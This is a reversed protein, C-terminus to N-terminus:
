LLKDITMDIDKVLLCSLTGSSGVTSQIKARLYRYAVGATDRKYISAPLKQAYILLSGTAMNQQLQRQSVIESATAFAADAAFELILTVSASATVSWAADTLFEVYVEDNYGYGTSLMDIYYTSSASTTAALTISQADMLMINSDLYM